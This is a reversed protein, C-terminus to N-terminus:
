IYFWVNLLHFFYGKKNLLGESMNSNVLLIFSYGNLTQKFQKGGLGIHEKGFDNHKTEYWFVSAM